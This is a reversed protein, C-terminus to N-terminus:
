WGAGVGVFAFREEQSMAGIAIAEVKLGRVRMVEQRATVALAQEGNMAGIYAGFHRRTSVEFWPPPVPKDLTTFEGTRTDLLTTVGHRRDDSPTTVSSVVHLESDRQVAESLGLKKKVEPRFVKVADVKLPTTTEKKLASAPAAPLAVGTPMSPLKNYWVAAYAAAGLLLAAILYKNMNM